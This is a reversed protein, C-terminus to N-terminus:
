NKKIVFISRRFVKSKDESKNRFFFYKKGLLKKYFNNYSLIKIKSNDITNRFDYIEEENISFNSDLAKINKLCIHKEIVTAGANVAAAAIEQTLLLTIQFVLKVNLNKKLININNLNFDSIKSPYNSVCYM